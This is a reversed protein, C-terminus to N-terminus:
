FLSFLKKTFFLIKGFVFFFTSCSAWLILPSRLNIFSSKSVHMDFPYTAYDGEDLDRTIGIKISYAFLM